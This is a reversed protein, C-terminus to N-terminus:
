SGTSQYRKLAFQWVALTLRLLVFGSLPAILGYVRYEDGRILYVAPYFGAMAYPLVWTLLVQIPLPYITVPFQVFDCFWSVPYMLSRINIVWFGICAILMHLSFFVLAGSVLALIIYPVWWLRFALDLKDLAIVIASIGVALHGMAGLSLSSNGIMQFMADAPRVLLTDLAGSQIYGHLGWPMNLFAVSLFRSTTLFGYILITEYYAWGRLQGVVGFIVSIFLLTMSQYIVTSAFGVWFDTRYELLRKIALRAYALYLGLYYRM